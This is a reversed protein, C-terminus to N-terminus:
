RLKDLQHKRVLAMYETSRMRPCELVAKVFVDPPEYEHADIYHLVLSPAVFVATGFPVFINTAGVYVKSFGVDVVGCGGSFRCFACNHVGAMAFPQWPDKLLAGLADFVSREIARGRQYPHKDDLWGIAILEPHGSFYTCRSLDEFYTM